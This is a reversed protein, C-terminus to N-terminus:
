VAAIQHAPAFFVAPEDGPAREVVAQEKLRDVVRQREQARLLFVLLHNAHAAGRQVHVRKLFRQVRVQHFRQDLGVAAVLGHRLVAVQVVQVVAEEAHVRRFVKLVIILKHSARLLREGGIQLGHAAIEGVARIGGAREYAIVADQAVHILKLHAIQLTEANGDIHRQDHEGRNRLRWDVGELLVLGHM